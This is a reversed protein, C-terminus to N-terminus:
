GRKHFDDHRFHHNLINVSGKIVTIQLAEKQKTLKLQKLQKNMTDTITGMAGIVLSIVEGTNCNVQSLEKLLPKYKRVKDRARQDLYEVICEYPCRIEIAYCYRNHTMTLDPKMLQLDQRWHREIWIETDNHNKRLEEAIKGVLHDHCITILKNKLECRSLIHGNDEIM